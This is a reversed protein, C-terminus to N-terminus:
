FVREQLLQLLYHGYANHKMAAATANLHEDSIYGCRYAIEEPCCVMLGQRTEIGNVNTRVFDDPAHISRDVHSEASAFHVIARPQYQQLLDCVLKRDVIDGHVFGYREDTAVQELNSLNGAYTLKDLNVIPPGETALWQLIFNSGIFGAGGTVLIPPQTM